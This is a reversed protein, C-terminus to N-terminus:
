PRPRTGFRMVSTSSGASRMPCSGSWCTSWGPLSRRSASPASGPRPRGTAPLRRKRQAPTVPPRSSNRTCLTSSTRSRNPTWLRVRYAVTSPDPSTATVRRRESSTHALDEPQQGLAIPMHGIGVPHGTQGTPFSAVCVLAGSRLRSREAIAGQPPKSRMWRSGDEGSTPGDLLPCRVPRQHHLLHAVTGFFPPRVPFALHSVVV